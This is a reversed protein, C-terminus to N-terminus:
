DYVKHVALHKHLETTARLAHPPNWCRSSRFVRYDAQILPSQFQSLIVPQQVSKVMGVSTREGSTTLETLLLGSFWVPIFM